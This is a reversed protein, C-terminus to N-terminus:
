TNLWEDIVTSLHKGTITNDISLKLKDITSETITNGERVATYITNTKTPHKHAKIQWGKYPYPRFM